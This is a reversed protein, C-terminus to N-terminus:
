KKNAKYKYKKVFGSPTYGTQEKFHVSFRAPTAFGIKKSIESCKVESHLLLKKAYDLRIKKLYESPSIGIDQTFVANMRSYSYNTQAILEKLPLALNKSDSFLALFAETAQSYQHTTINEPTNIITTALTCLLSYCTLRYSASPNCFYDDTTKKIYNVLSAPIEYSIYNKSILKDYLNNSFVNLFDRLLESTICLNFYESEISCAEMYHRDDPRLLTFTNVPQTFSYENVHHIYKDKTILVFEWFNDHSHRHPYPVYGYYFCSDYNESENNKQPMRTREIM